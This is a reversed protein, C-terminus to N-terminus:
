SDNNRFSMAKLGHKKLLSQVHSRNMELQKALDVVRGATARLGAELYRREAADSAQRKADALSLGAAPEAEVASGSYEVAATSRVEQPLHELRAVRDALCSIRFILNKLERINGPYGYSNLFEIVERSLEVRSRELDRAAENLFYECLLPIEDRRERLAPLSAHIVSLRYYLDE